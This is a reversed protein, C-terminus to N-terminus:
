ARGFDSLRRLGKIQNRASFFISNVTIIAAGIVTAGSIIFFGKGTTQGVFLDLLISVAGTLSVLIFTRLGASHRKGSREMGIAASMLLTIAIRFLVSGIGIESSWAGLLGAIFDNM